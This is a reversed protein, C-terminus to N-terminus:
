GKCPWAIRLSATVFDRLSDGSEPQGAAIVPLTKKVLLEPDMGEPVCAGSQDSLGFIVGACFGSPGPEDSACYGQYALADADRYRESPGSRLSVRSRATASPTRTGGGSVINVRYTAQEGTTPDRTLEVRQIREPAVTAPDFGAPAPAGDILFVVGALRADIAPDGTVRDLRIEVAGTYLTPGDPQTTVEDAFFTIGGRARGPAPSSAGPAVSEATPPAAVMALASSGAAVIACLSAAAALTIARVKPSMPPRPNLIANLRMAAINRGAGIFAAHPEPGASLRLAHVLIEAYRRRSDAAAGALTLEDRREERAASLRARIARMAPNFWFLALLIDEVVLRPNDGLKLHALEHDCIMALSETPLGNLNEPLLIAPRRLGALRPTSVEASTLLAPAKIGLSAARGAVEAVLDPRACPRARSTLRALRAHRRILLGLNILAGLAVLALVAQPWPLAVTSAAYSVEGPASDVMIPAIPALGLGPINPKAPLWKVAAVAAAGHLAPLAMLGTWVDERMRASIAVREASRDLVEGALWCLAAVPLSTLLALILVTM